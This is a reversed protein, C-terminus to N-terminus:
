LDAGKAKKKKSKGSKIEEFKHSPKEKLEIEEGPNVIISEGEEQVTVICTGKYKYKTM